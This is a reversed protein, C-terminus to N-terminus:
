YSIVAAGDLVDTSLLFSREAPARSVIWSGDIVTGVPKVAVTRQEVFFDGFTGGAAEGITVMDGFRRVLLHNLLGATRGDFDVSRLRSRANKQQSVIFQALQLAQDDSTLYPSSIQDGDSPGWRASANTDEALQTVGGERTVQVRTKVRDADIGPGIAKMENSLLGTSVAAARAHRDAFTAVGDPGVYFVGREADLLGSILQLGTDTGAATFNPIPDGATLSRLAPDIWGVADLVLGIAAGTTTPGTAAIVPSERQLWYFLDVLELTATGGRGSPQWSLRRIWGYFQPISNGPLYATIRCPHLREGLDGALPSSPNEPSFVAGPDRIVVRGSNASMRELDDSRGQTIDISDVAATVDDYPGGFADDFASVGLTPDGDLQSVGVVFVDRANASWSVEVKWACVPVTTAAAATGHRLLPVLPM